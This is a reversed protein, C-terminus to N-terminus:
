QGDEPEGLLTREALLALRGSVNLVTCIIGEDIKGNRKLELAKDVATAIKIVYPALINYLKDKTVFRAIIAMAIGGFAGSALLGIIWQRLQM